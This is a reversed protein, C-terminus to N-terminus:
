AKGMEEKYGCDWCFDYESGKIIEQNEDLDVDSSVDESGCKPCTKM